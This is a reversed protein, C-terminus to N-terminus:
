IVGVCVAWHEVRTRGLSASPKALAGKLVWDLDTLSVASQHITNVAASGGVALPTVVPVPSTM